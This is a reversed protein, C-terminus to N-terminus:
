QSSSKKYARKLLVKNFVFFIVSRIRDPIRCSFLSFPGVRSSQSHFFFFIDLFSGHWESLVKKAYHMFLGDRGQDIFMEPLVTSFIM